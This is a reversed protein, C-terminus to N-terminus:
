RPAAALEAHIRDVLASKPYRSVFAAARARADQRRGLRALAIVSLAEREEVLHGNSFRQQGREALALAATPSRDLLTRIERIQALEERLADDDLAAPKGTALARPVKAKPAAPLANVSVVPAIGELASERASSANPAEATPIAAGTAEQVALESRPAGPAEAPTPAGVFMSSFGVAAITSIGIGWKISRSIGLGVKAGAGSSADAPPASGRDGAAKAGVAMSSAAARLKTWGVDLDVLGKSTREGALAERIAPPADPDDILRRPDNM